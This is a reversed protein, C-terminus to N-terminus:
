EDPSDQSARTQAGSRAQLKGLDVCVVYGDSLGVILLDDPARFAAIPAGVRPSGTVGPERVDLVLARSPLLVYVCSTDNDCSVSLTDDIRLEWRNGGPWVPEAYNIRRAPGRAIVPRGTRLDLAHSVRLNAQAAASCQGGTQGETVYICSDGPQLDLLENRTPMPLFGGWLGIQSGTRYVWLVSKDKYTIRDEALLGGTWCGSACFLLVACVGLVGARGARESVHSTTRVGHPSCSMPLERSAYPRDAIAHGSTARAVAASYM